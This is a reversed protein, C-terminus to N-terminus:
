DLVVAPRRSPTRCLHCAPLGISSPRRLLSASTQIATTQKSIYSAPHEGEVGCRTRMLTTSRRWGTESQVSGAIGLLRSLSPGARELGSACPRRWILTRSTELFATCYLVTPHPGEGAAVYLAANMTVGGSPVAVPLLHAPHVPDQAGDQTVAAMGPSQVLSLAALIAALM